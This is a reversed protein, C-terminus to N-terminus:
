NNKLQTDLAIGLGTGIIYCVIDSWLFGRGLALRGLTYGRLHELWSVNSLQSFEICVCISLSVIGIFLTTTNPFLFAIIFFFMTAYFIDGLYPFLSTPVWSMRSLLGIGISSIILVAYLWRTRKTQTTM